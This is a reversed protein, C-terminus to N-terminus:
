PVLPCVCGLHGASSWHCLESGRTCSPPCSHPSLQWGGKSLSSCAWGQTHCINCIGMLRMMCGRGGHSAASGVRWPPLVWHTLRMQISALLLCVSKIEGLPSDSYLFWPPNLKGQAAKNPVGGGTLVARSSFWISFAGGVLGCHGM